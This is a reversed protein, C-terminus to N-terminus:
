HRYCWGRHARPKGGTSCGVTDAGMIQSARFLLSLARTVDRDDEGAMALQSAVLGHRIWLENRTRVPYSAMRVAYSLFVRATARDVQSIAEAFEDPTALGAVVSSLDGDSPGPIGFPAYGSAALTVAADISTM